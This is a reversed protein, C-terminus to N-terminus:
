MFNYAIISNAAPPSALRRSTRLSARDMVWLSSARDEVALLTIRPIRREARSPVPPPRPPLPLHSISPFRHLYETFPPTVVVGFGTIDQGTVFRTTSSPGAVMM